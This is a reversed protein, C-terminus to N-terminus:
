FSNCSPPPLFFFMGVGGDRKSRKLIGGLLTVREQPELAREHSTDNSHSELLHQYSKSSMHAAFKAIPTLENDDSNRDPITKSQPQSLAVRLVSSADADQLLCFQVIALSENKL